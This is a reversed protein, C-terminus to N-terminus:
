KKAENNAEVVKIVAIASIQNKFDGYISAREIDTVAVETILPRLKAFAAPAVGRVKVVFQEGFNDIDEKHYNTKDEIVQLTVKSGEIQVAKGEGERWPVAKIYALRKGILFDELSFCQFSNLGKFSM